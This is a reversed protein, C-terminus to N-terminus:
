GRALNDVERGALEPKLVVRHFPSFFLMAGLAISLAGWPWIALHASACANRLANSIALATVASSISPLLGYIGHHRPAALLPLLERQISPLLGCRFRDPAYVGVAVPPLRDGFLLTDQQGIFVAPELITCGFCVLGAGDFLDM